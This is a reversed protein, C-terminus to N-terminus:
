ILLKNDRFRLPEFEQIRITFSYLPNWLKVYKELLRTWFNIIEGGKGIIMGPRGCTVWLQIEKQTVDIKTHLCHVNSKIVCRAIEGRFDNYLGYACESLSMDVYNAFATKIEEAFEESNLAMLEPELPGNPAMIDDYLRIYEDRSIEEVDNKHVYCWQTAYHTNNILSDDDIEFPKVNACTRGMDDICLERGHNYPTYVPNNLCSEKIKGFKKM